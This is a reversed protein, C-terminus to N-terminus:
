QVISHQVHQHEIASTEVLVQAWNEDELRQLSLELPRDVDTGGGFSFRLFDLLNAMSRADVALELEKVQRSAPRFLTGTIAADRDAPAELEV